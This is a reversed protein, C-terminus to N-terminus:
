HRHGRAERAISSEGAFYSLDQLFASEVNYFIFLYLFTFFSLPLLYLLIFTFVSSVLLINMISIHYQNSGHKFVGTSQGESTTSLNYM